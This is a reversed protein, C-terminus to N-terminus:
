CHYAEGQRIDLLGRRPDSLTPDELKESNREKELFNLIIGEVLGKSVQIKNIESLDDDFDKAVAYRMNTGGLDVLLANNM